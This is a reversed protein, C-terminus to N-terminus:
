DEPQPVAIFRAVVAGAANQLLLENALMRYSATRELATTFPRDIKTGACAMRTSILARFQLHRQPGLVYAAGIRNCGDFGSMRREAPLFTIYPVRGKDEIGKSGDIAQLQWRFSSFLVTAGPLDSVKHLLWDHKGRPPIAKGNADLPMLANERVQYLSTHGQRDRLAIDRDGHLWTFTGTETFSSAPRDAYQRTLRYDGNAALGITVRILPTDAGPADGAYAGAWDLSTRSTDAPAVMRASSAPQVACAALFLLPLFGLLLRRRM